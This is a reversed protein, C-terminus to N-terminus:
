PGLMAAATTCTALTTHTQNWAPSSGCAMTEPFFFFLFFFTFIFSVCFFISWFYGVFSSHGSRAWAPRRARDSKAVNTELWSVKM